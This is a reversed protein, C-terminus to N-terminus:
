MKQRLATLSRRAVPHQSGDRLLIEGGGQANSKLERIQSLRVIVSRHPRFFLGPDLQAELENLSYRALNETGQSRIMVYNDRTIIADITEIPIVALRGGAQARIRQLYTQSDHSVKRIAAYAEREAIRARVHDLCQAFREECVPKCLYDLAKDQFARVAHEEHATVFVALPLPERSLERLVAFGDIEPMQIDLFLLAPQLSPLERIASAGSDFSGVVEIDIHAQLLDNLGERALEEDDVIATRITM